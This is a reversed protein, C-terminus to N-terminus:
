CRNDDEVLMSSVIQLNALRQLRKFPMRWMNRNPVAPHLWYCVSTEKRRWQLSLLKRHSHFKCIWNFQFISSFKLIQERIETLFKRWQHWTCATASLVWSSHPQLACLCGTLPLSPWLCISLPLHWHLFNCLWTMESFCQADVWSHANRWM